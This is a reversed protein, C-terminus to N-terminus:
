VQLMDVLYEFIKMFIIATCVSVLFVVTTALIFFFLKFVVNNLVPSIEFKFAGRQERTMRLLSFSSQNSNIGGSIEREMISIYVEGDEDEVVSPRGM